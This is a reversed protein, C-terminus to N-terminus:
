TEDPGLLRFVKLLYDILPKLLNLLLYGALIGSGNAMFDLISFSRWSVYHQLVEILFSFLWLLSLMMWMRRMSVIAVYASLVAISYGTAHLLLDSFKANIFEPVKATGFYIFVLLLLIFQTLRVTKRITDVPM